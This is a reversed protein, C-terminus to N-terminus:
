EFLKRSIFIYEGPATFASFQDLWPVVIKYNRTTANNATFQSLVSQIKEGAWASKEIVCNDKLADYVMQGLEHMDENEQM